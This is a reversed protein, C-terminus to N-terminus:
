QKEPKAYSKGITLYHVPPFEAVPKTILVDDGAGSFLPTDGSVSYGLLASFSFDRRKVRDGIFAWESFIIPKQEAPTRLNLADGWIINKELIYKVATRVDDHILLPFKKEYEATFREYLRNRCQAVNDELIDIGYISAIATVASREYETRSAGYRSAALALKRALVAILFNGNGCAPELWRSDIRQTEQKVLDLMANVERPGTYVEGHDAVRQKSKIQKEQM